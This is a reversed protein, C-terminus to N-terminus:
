FKAQRNFEALLVSCAIAANLSEVEGQQPIKIKVHSLQDIEHSVGHSESGIILVAPQKLDLTYIDDGSLHSSYIHRGAGSLMRDLKGRKIKVRFISGMSAQVVKANYEDVTNESCWIENVGFCEASRIMTGFNGPDRIDDLALIIPSTQQDITLFDLIALSGPPSELQSIKKFERESVLIAKKLFPGLWQYDKQRKEDLFIQRIEVGSNIAEELLKKGEIIFQRAEQRKKKQHLSRIYKEQSKSLM